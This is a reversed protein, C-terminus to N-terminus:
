KGSRKHCPFYEALTKVIVEAASLARQESKLKALQSYVFEKASGPLIKNNSCWGKGDTADLVGLFYMDAKIRERENEKNNWANFFREATLKVNHGTLLQPDRPFVSTDDDPLSQASPYTYMKSEALAPVMFLAVVLAIFGKMVQVKINWPKYSRLRGASVTMQM